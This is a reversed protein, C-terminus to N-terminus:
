RVRAIQRRTLLASSIRHRPERGAVTGRWRDVSGDLYRRRLRVRDDERRSLSITRFVATANRLIRLCCRPPGTWGAHANAHPWDYGDNLQSTLINPRHSTRPRAEWRGLM